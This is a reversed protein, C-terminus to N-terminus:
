TRVVGSAAPPRCRFGLLQPLEPPPTPRPPGRGRGPRPRGRCRGRCRQPRPDDATTGSTEAPRALPSSRTWSRPARRPPRDRCATRAGRPRRGCRGSARDVRAGMSSLRSSSPATCARHSGAARSAREGTAPRAGARQAGVGGLHRPEHEGAPQRQEDVDERRAPVRRDDRDWPREELDDGLSGEDEGQPEGQQGVASMTTRGFRKMISSVVSASLESTTESCLWNM